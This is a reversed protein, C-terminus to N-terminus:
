GGLEAIVDDIYYPDDNAPATLIRVGTGALKEEAHRIWRTLREVMLREFLADIRQPEREVEGFEEPDMEIPYFGSDSVRREFGTLDDAELHHEKGLFRARFRGAGARIIPIVLKGTFDGGLVLVDAGYFSGAAVFKRWCVDSGHIDTAFYLTVTSERQRARRKFVGM